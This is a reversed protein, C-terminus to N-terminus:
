TKLISDVKFIGKSVKSFLHDSNVSKWIFVLKLGLVKAYKVEQNSKLQLKPKHLLSNYHLGCSGLLLHLAQEGFFGLVFSM